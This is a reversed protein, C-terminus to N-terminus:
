TMAAGIMLLQSRTRAKMQARCLRATQRGADTGDLRVDELGVVPTGCAHKQDMSPRAFSREHTRKSIVHVAARYSANQEIKRCM